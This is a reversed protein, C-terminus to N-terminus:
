RARLDQAANITSGPIAPLGLLALALNGSDGNRIPPSGTASMPPQKLGPDRRALPNLAYLDHETREAAPSGTWVIFPIIYDVWMHAQDHSRLPAGGGHDATLVIATTSALKPDSEIADLLRVLEADVSAVARMYKSSPTIDWGHVHATLDTVAFHAFVLSRPGGDKLVRVVNDVIEPTKTAFLFEDLKDRGNDPAVEDVAGHAADYSVDYIAFKSKGAFAATKLGRDHAVDFMSALYAGRNSHLTEGEDADDNKLWAHGHDGFVPRGTLMATHNPLTVSRDPDCRANLTFAGQELRTFGPLQDAPVALLADSRLGDVSILVAHDVRAGPAAAARTAAPPAPQPASQPASQPVGATVSLAFALTWSM